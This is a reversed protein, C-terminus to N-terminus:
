IWLQAPQSLIFDTLPFPIETSNQDTTSVDRSKVEWVSLLIRDNSQSINLYQGTVIWFPDYEQGENKFCSLCTASLDLVSASGTAQSKRSKYTEGEYTKEQREKTNNM